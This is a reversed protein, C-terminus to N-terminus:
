DQGMIQQGRGDTPFLPPYCIWGLWMEGFRQATSTPLTHAQVKNKHSAEKRPNQSMRRPM